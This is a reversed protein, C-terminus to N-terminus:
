SAREQAEASTTRAMPVRGLAMATQVYDAVMARLAAYGDSQVDREVLYVRGEEGAPVDIVIASGRVRRGLLRRESEALTYRALEYGLEGVAEPTGTINAAATM